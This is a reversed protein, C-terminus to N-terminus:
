GRFQVLHRSGDGAVVGWTQYLQGVCDTVGNREVIRFRGLQRRLFYFAEVTIGCSATLCTARWNGARNMRWLLNTEFGM